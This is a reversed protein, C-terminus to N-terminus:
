FSYTPQDIGFRLKAYAQDRPASFIIHQNAAHLDRFCRQLPQDSMVADAGVLYMVRDVAKVAARMAQSCALLMRGRQELSPPDGGCVTHWIDGAADFVFSRAAQLEGEARALQVQAHGDLAVAEGTGGRLKSRALQTFEDLARRGVGLPFGAMMIAVLTFFPMRWLPGDHRAADYFPSAFHERPVLSADISLHHSGTGRLGAAYWTDEITAVDRRVFALRWDAVGPARM